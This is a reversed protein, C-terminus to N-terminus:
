EKLAKERFGQQDSIFISLPIRAKEVASTGSKLDSLLMTKKCSKLITEGYTQIQEVFYEEQVTLNTSQWLLSAYEFISTLPTRMEHYLKDDLMM